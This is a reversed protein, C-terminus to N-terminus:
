FFPSSLSELPSHCSCLLRHRGVGSWHAPAFLELTQRHSCCLQGRLSEVRLLLCVTSVGALRRFATFFPTMKQFGMGQSLGRAATQVISTDLVVESYGQARAFQIVTRVLAKALGQGRRELAVSLHFLQLQKERLTPDQVPLAGVMGVVQGESEALAKALGQGRHELAVSLHFLQLQKERLTPDQVPLAGVMGVVQGESEAVWFCSGSGRLYSKTIDAMDSQLSLAVYKKWPYSAALRLVVLIALSALLALLWSGSLLLLVLPVGPLLLLTQPQRLLHRFASPIHEEMGQSFLALVSKRDREQYKRIHYSAM